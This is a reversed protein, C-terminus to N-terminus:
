KVFKVNSAKGSIQWQEFFFTAYEEDRKQFSYICTPKCGVLKVFDKKWIVEIVIPDDKAM